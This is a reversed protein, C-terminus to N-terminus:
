VMIDHNSAFENSFDEQEHEIVTSLRKLAIESHTESTSQGQEM